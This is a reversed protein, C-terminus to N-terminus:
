SYVNYTITYKYGRFALGRGISLYYDGDSIAQFTFTTGKISGLEEVVEYDPNLISWDMSIDCNLEGKVWQGAKLTIPLRKEWGDWEGTITEVPGPNLEVFNAVINKDSDMTLNLPNNQNGNVGSWSQFAYPFIDTSARIVIESGEVYSGSSVDVSGKDEPNVDVQLNYLKSFYAVLSKNSDMLIEIENENSTSGEWRDFLYSQAPDAIVTITSGAEFSGSAPQVTGGGPTGVSTDLNFSMKSFSAVVHKDSDMNITVQKSNSSIDGGWANFTFYTSPEAILTVSQNEDYTGKMPNVSGSNNPTVSVSLEYTKIFNAVIKKNGDMTVKVTPSQGSVSGEWHSFRYGPNPIAKVQVEVGKDYTGQAPSISGGSTPYAESTLTPNILDCSATICSTSILFVILCYNIIRKM